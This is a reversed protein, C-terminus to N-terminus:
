TTVARLRAITGTTSRGRLEPVLEVRGGYERVVSAGVVGDPRYDGGKVLVDPRLQRLLEVPEDNDSASGFIVITDVSALGALVTARDSEGNVPRQPGKLRRISEDSNLGVILLDGMARARHLLTVHGAHLVDFCGNTFVVRGGSGRVLEAERRAEDVTRVKTLGEGGSAERVRRWLDRRITALPIPVVGFQEVELGAAVNGLRVADTWGWGNAAAAAIAATMMDGAGTVDYVERAVTPLHVPGHGRELLLAGHRDLTLVAAEVGVTDILRQAAVAAGALDHSDGITLGTAAQAEVRNPLIATAGRYRSFDAVAAPDVVVPVGAARCAAIVPGLVEPVCVGKGYDEIVVVDTRVLASRVHDVMAAAVGPSVPDVREVDLRFMKQPHRGQALGVLSQKRTTPRGPDAIVGAVGVGEAALADRLTRGSEDAGILGVCEVHVDLARLDLCVNSAGGPRHDTRTVRLVPVPADPSLRTADGFVLEDLM